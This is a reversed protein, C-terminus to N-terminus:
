AYGGNEFPGAGPIFTNGFGEIPGGYPGPNSGFRGGASIGAVGTGVEGTDFM